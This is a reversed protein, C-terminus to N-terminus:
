KAFATGNWKYKVSKSSSLPLILPEYGGVTSVDQNFPYTKETWGVFRGPGLEIEKSSAFSISGTAKNSGIGRGVEAAFIRKLAESQVQFVLVVERDVTGSVGAPAAAHLTGRVIIEAKGDGTVDRATLETIDS